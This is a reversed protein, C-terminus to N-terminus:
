RTGDGFFRGPPTDPSARHVVCLVPQLGMEILSAVAGQIRTQNPSACIPNRSHKAMAHAAEYTAKM